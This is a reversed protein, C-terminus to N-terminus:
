DRGGDLLEKLRPEAEEGIADAVFDHAKRLRSMAHTYDLGSKQMVIAAKVNWHARRLLKDAAEYEVRTVMTVIRRARDRLKESGTQVDVMLNGYTKGIRVMAATTLMNLVIKTATGAKLRTSGAIVEPGVAPAITVDVFTQLETRPDCTVFIIKSQARRARTLAGRVFPTMGSASVGIVVDKKTPRLRNVSRAGEEYNDEVGEKARVMSDRGGAIIAQVLDPDTGFTTPMEAAEVMGLRGSTGAGVFIVRGGKRLAQTIIDIGVAIREKERQVALLTKREESLMSEVIDAPPLKDIALTASNIAETPLSQWKSRLPM